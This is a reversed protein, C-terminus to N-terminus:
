DGETADFYVMISDWETAYNPDSYVVQAILPQALIASIIIIRKYFPTQVM